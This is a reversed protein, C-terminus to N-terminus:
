HLSGTMNKRGSSPMGMQELLGACLVVASSILWQTRPFHSKCVNKKDKSKCHELVVYEQKDEDWIHVHHQKLEQLRQVHLELHQRLWNIGGQVRSPLSRSDAELVYSPTTILDTTTSYEPWENEVAKRRAEDWSAVLADSAFSQRCVHAKYRLYKEVLEPKEQM